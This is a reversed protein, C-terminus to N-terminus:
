SINDYNNSQKDATLLLSKHKV